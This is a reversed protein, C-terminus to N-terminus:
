KAFPPVKGLRASHIFFKIDKIEQDIDKQLKIPKVTIM